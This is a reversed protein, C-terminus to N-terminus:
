ELSSSFSHFWVQIYQGHLAKSYIKMGLFAVANEVRNFNYKKNSYLLHASCLETDPQVLIFSSLAIAQTMMISYYLYFVAGNM